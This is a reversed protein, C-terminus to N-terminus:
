KITANKKGYPLLISIQTKIEDFSFGKRMLSAIVKQKEHFDSLDRNKYKTKLLHAISETSSAGESFLSVASQAVKESFGKNRIKMKIRSPSEHKNLCSRTYNELWERDNVYGKEKFENILREIIESEVGRDKMKKILELTSYSKRALVRILYAKAAEYQM